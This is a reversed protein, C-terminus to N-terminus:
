RRENEITEWEFYRRENLMKISRGDKPVQFSKEKFQYISIFDQTWFYIFKWRESCFSQNTTFYPVLNYLVTHHLPNRLSFYNKKINIVPILFTLYLCFTICQTFCLPVNQFWKGPSSTQGAGPQLGPVWSNSKHLQAPAHIGRWTARGAGLASWWIVAWLISIDLM